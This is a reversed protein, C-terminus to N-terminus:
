PMTRIVDLYSVVGVLRGVADVVPLAGVREHVLHDIASTVPADQSVTIVERSM